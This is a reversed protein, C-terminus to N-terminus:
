ADVLVKFGGYAMRKPDFPMAKKDKMAKTMKVMRPDKMVKKNVADRHARSKYTIWAFVVTEGTKAASRKLFSVVGKPRLDDGVCERYELAGHDRWVRGAQQAIRRYTALHKKPIPVLFGDVYLAM